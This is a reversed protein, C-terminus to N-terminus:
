ELEELGFYQEGATTLTWRFFRDIQDHFTTIQRALEDPDFPQQAEVFIDIDLLYAPSQPATDPLIGPVVTNPPIHGHRVIGQVEAPPGTLDGVPQAALQTQAISTILRAGDGVVATAPWGTLEPRFWDRWAGEDGPPIEAIDVYRLGLRDCRSVGAGERLADLIGRFRSSFEDFAGYQPGVSLTATDVSLALTWGIDDTFKWTHATQSEAAPPGTPGMLLSVQQIQEQALYPFFAELREQVPAIGDLGQLRTRVPYRVQGLAQVLPPRALRYRSAPDLGFM